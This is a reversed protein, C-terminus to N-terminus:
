QPREERDPSVGSRQPRSGEAESLAPAREGLVEQAIPIESAVDAKNGLLEDFLDRYHLLGQRLEETSAKGDRNADIMAHGARYHAVLRPHKASLNAAHREFDGVPYGQARLVKDILEDAQVVATTPRELFHKEIAIWEARFRDRDAASLPRIELREGAEARALLEQEARSRSRATKVAYDYESGFRERLRGTRARRIGRAILGVVVLAAVIGVAIWIWVPDITM